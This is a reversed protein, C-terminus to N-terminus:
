ECVKKLLGTIDIFASYEQSPSKSHALSYQMFVHGNSFIELNVSIAVYNYVFGGNWNVGENKMVVYGNYEKFSGTSNSGSNTYSFSHKIITSGGTNGTVKSNINCTTTHHSGHGLCYITSINFFGSDISNVSCFWNHKTYKSVVTLDSKVTCSGSMVNNNISWYEQIQTVVPIIMFMTAVGISIVVMLLNRQM